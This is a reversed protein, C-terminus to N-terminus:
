TTGHTVNASCTFPAGINGNNHQIVIGQVSAYTGAVFIIVGIALLVANLISLTINRWGRYWSGDKILCFWFLAPFYFTFGSSFLSSIIGLLNDFVPIAEATLWAIITIAM